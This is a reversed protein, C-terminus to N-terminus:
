KHIYPQTWCPCAIVNKGRRPQQADRADEGVFLAFPSAFERELLSSICFYVGERRSPLHRPRQALLAHRYCPTRPAYRLPPPVLPTQDEVGAAAPLLFSRCLSSRWFAATSSAEPSPRSPASGASSSPAPASRAPSPPV